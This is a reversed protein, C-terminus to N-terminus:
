RRRTLKLKMPDGHFDKLGQKDIKGWWDIYCIFDPYVLEVQCPLENAKDKLFQEFDQLDAIIEQISVYNFDDFLRRTRKDYKKMRERKEELKQKSKEILWQEFLQVVKSACQDDSVKLYVQMTEEYSGFDFCLIKFSQM